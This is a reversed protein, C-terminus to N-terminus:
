PAVVRRKLKVAEVNFTYDDTATSFWIDESCNKWNRRAGRGKEREWTIRNRLVLYKGAVTQIAASSRWDGCIYVSATPKLTKVLRPLWGELWGAYQEPSRERFTTGNFSKTLNYPPDIFLLDAFSDPLLDIIEFLDQNVTKNELSAPAAKSDLKLFRTKYHDFEGALLTVSRNRPARARKDARSM